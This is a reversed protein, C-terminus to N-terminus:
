TGRKDTKPFNNDDGNEFFSKYYKCRGFHDLEPKKEHECEAPSEACTLCFALKLKDRTM